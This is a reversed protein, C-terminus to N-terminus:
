QEKVEEKEFLCYICLWSPLIRFSLDMHSVFAVTLYMGVFLVILPLYEIMEEGGFKNYFCHIVNNRVMNNNNRLQM